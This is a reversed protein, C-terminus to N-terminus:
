GGMRVVTPHMAALLANVALDAGVDVYHLGDPRALVPGAPSSVTDDCPSTLPEHCVVATISVYTALSPHDSAYKRLMNNWREMLDFYHDRYFVHWAQAVNLNIGPPETAVLVVTARM